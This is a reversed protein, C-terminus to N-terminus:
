MGFIFSVGVGNAEPDAAPTIIIAPYVSSLIRNNYKRTAVRATVFSVLRNLALTGLVLTSATQWSGATERMEAYRDRHEASAWSWQDSPDYYTEDFRRMNEMAWNFDETKMFNRNALYAWYQDNYPRTSRTYAYIRAYGLSSEYRRVSTFHTYLFGTWLILEASLFAFASKKEGLYFYGTGPVILNLGSAVWDGKTESKERPAQINQLDLLFEEQSFVFVCSLLLVTIIKKMSLFAM